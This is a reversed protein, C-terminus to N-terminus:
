ERPRPTKALATNECELNDQTQIRRTFVSPLFVRRTVLARNILIQNPIVVSSVFYSMGFFGLFVLCHQMCHFTM